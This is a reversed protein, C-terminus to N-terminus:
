DWLADWWPTMEALAQHLADRRRDLEAQREASTQFPSDDTFVDDDNLIQRFATAWRKLDTQWQEHDTVVDNPHDENRYPRLGSGDRVHLSGYPYGCPTGPTTEALRELSGALVRNLYQDLSWVDRPAWGYRARLYLTRADFWLTRIRTLGRSYSFPIPRM